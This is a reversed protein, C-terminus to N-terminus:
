RRQGIGAMALMAQARVSMVPDSQLMAVADLGSRDGIAALSRIAFIRIAANADGLLTILADNATPAGIKGLAIVAQGKVEADADHTAAVLAPVTEKGRRNGLAVAALVRMRAIPSSLAAILSGPPDQIAQATMDVCKNFDPDRTGRLSELVRPVRPDGTVGFALVAWIPAIGGGTAIVDVLADFAPVGCSGLYYSVQIKVIEAAGSKMAQALARIAEDSCGSLGLAMVSPGTLEDPAQALTSVAAPGAMAALSIVIALRLVDGSSPDRMIRVLSPVAEVDMQVLTVWDEKAILSWVREENNQAKWELRELMASASTRIREDPSRLQDLLVGIAADGLEKLGQIARASVDSDPYGIAKILGKLDRKATLKKVDPPGFLRM